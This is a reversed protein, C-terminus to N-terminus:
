LPQFIIDRRIAATPAAFPESLANDAAHVAVVTQPTPLLSPEDRAEDGRTFSYMRIPRYLDACLGASLM